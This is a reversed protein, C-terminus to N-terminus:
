LPEENCLRDTCVSVGTVFALIPNLAKYPENWDDDAEWLVTYAAVTKQNHQLKEGQIWKVGEELVKVAENREKLAEENYKKVSAFPTKKKDDLKNAEELKAGDEVDNAAKRTEWKGLFRDCKWEFTDKDGYDITWDMGSAKSETYGCLLISCTIFEHQGPETPSEYEFYTVAYEPPPKEDSEWWKKNKSAANNERNITWEM